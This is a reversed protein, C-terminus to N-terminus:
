LTAIHVRVRFIQVTHVSLYNFCKFIEFSYTFKMCKQAHKVKKQQKTQKDHRRIYACFEM